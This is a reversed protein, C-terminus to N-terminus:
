DGREEEGNQLKELAAAALARTIRGGSVMVAQDLLAVYDRVASARRPLRRLLWDTVQPGMVLQREAVLRLLLRHLLDEEAEGMPVSATARLRSLLDPLAVPWRSPPQRAVMLLSMRRERVLNILHLLDQERAIADANDLAVARFGGDQFLDVVASENLRAGEMVPAGYRGAWVSLLHTKGTGGAGWLAMRGEPWRTVAETDLVWARAAANSPAAVFDTRGFRPRHAFPLAIQGGSTDAAGLEADNPAPLARNTEDIRTM